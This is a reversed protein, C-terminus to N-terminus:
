LGQSRGEKAALSIFILLSSSGKIYKKEEREQGLDHNAGLVDM